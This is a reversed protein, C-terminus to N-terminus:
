LRAAPRSRARSSVAQGHRRHQCGGGCQARKETRIQPVLGAARTVTRSRAARQSRGARIRVGLGSGHRRSGALSQRRGTFASASPQSVGASAVPGLVFGNRGRVICLCVFRWFVFLGTSDKCRARVADDHYASLHDSGRCNEASQGSLDHPHHSACRLSGATRRAPNKVDGVGGVGCPGVHCAARHLPQCNVLPDAQRDNTAECRNPRRARRPM